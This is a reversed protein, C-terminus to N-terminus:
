FALRPPLISVRSGMEAHWALLGPRPGPCLPVCQQKLVQQYGRPSLVSCGLGAWPRPVFGEEPRQGEETGCSQRGAGPGRRVTKGSSVRQEEDRSVRGGDKRQEGGRGGGTGLAAHKLKNMQLPWIQGAKRVANSHGSSTIM